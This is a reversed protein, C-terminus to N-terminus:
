LWSNNFEDNWKLMEDDNKVINLVKILDEVMVRVTAKGIRENYGEPAHGAYGNPYNAAWGYKISQIGVDMLHRTRERSLGDVAHIKDMRVLEPYTGLMIATEAFGAHGFKKKKETFDRLVEIDNDNLEAFYERGNEKLRDTLVYPSALKLRHFIVVYDKKSYSCSRIFNSLFPVNGGHSNVLLIKKFGNRAIEDCLETLLRQELEVTLRIGGRHRTHGQVDGFTFDPFICVPERKSAERLIYSAKLIDTGVPLHQGHMELCGLPIACVGKSKE